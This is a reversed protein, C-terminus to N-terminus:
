SILISKIAIKFKVSKLINGEKLKKYETPSLCLMKRFCEIYRQENTFGSLNAIEKIKLDSNKLLEISHTIKFYMLLRKPSCFNNKQFIRTITCESIGIYNAIDTITFIFLYNNEMFRLIRQLLPPCVEVSIKFKDLTIKPGHSSLLLSELKDLEDTLLVEKIGNRGLYHSLKVETKKLIAISNLNSFCESIYKLVMEEDKTYNIESYLLLSDFHKLKLYDRVNPLSEKYTCNFESLYNKFLYRDDNNCVILISRNSLNM